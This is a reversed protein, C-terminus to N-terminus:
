GVMYQDGYNNLTPEQVYGHCPVNAKMLEHATQAIHVSPLEIM